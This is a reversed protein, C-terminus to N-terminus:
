SGWDYTHGSLYWEWVIVDVAGNLSEKQKLEIGMRESMGCWIKHAERKMIINAWKGFTMTPVLVNRNDNM